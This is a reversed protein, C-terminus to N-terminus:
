EFFEIIAAVDRQGVMPIAHDYIDILCDLLPTAVGIDAALDKARPPIRRARRRFRVTASITAGGDV